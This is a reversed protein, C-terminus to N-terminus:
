SFFQIFKTKSSYNFLQKLNGIMCQPPMHLICIEMLFIQWLYENIRLPPFIPFMIIIIFFNTFTFRSTEFKRLKSTFHTFLNRVIFENGTPEWFIIREVSSIKRSCLISTSYFGTCIFRLCQDVLQRFSMM